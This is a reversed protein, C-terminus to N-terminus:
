FLGKGHCNRYKKGSACPCKSDPLVGKIPKPHESPKSNLDRVYDTDSISPVRFTMKTKGQFNTVSFDGLNILNMGILCCKDHNASLEAAETVRTNISISQNNLTLNIFYVNVEQSGHVGNSIAKEIVKLGLKEAASKTIVCNTAGTDWIANTEMTVGSFPNKLTVPTSLVNEIGSAHYTLAHVVQNIEGM